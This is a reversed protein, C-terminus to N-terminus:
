DWWASLVRMGPELAPSASPAASAWGEEIESPDLATLWGRLDDPTASTLVYVRESFPWEDEGEMVEYIEVLVDQVDPRSRVDRLTRYFGDTGPHEVLNCGISGLDENGEFFDELSVIPSPADPDDPDGQQTIKDVLRQRKNM